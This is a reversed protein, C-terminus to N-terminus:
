CGKSVEWIYEQMEKTNRISEWERMYNFGKRKGYSKGKHLGKEKILGPQIRLETMGELQDRTIM